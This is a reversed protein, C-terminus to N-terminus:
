AVCDIEPAYESNLPYLAAAGLLAASAFTLRSELASLEPDKAVCYAVMESSLELRVLEVSVPVPVAPIVVLVNEVGPLTGM